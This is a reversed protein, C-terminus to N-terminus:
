CFSGRLVRAILGHGPGGLVNSLLSHGLRNASGVVLSGSRISGRREFTGSLGLRGVKRFVVILRIAFSRPQFSLNTM